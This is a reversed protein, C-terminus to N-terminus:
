PVPELAVYLFSWVGLIFFIPGFAIALSAMRRVNFRSIYLFLVPLVSFLYRGQAQYDVVWSFYVSQAISLLVGLMLLGTRMWDYANSRDALVIMAVLFAIWVVFSASYYQKPAYKKMHGYAGVFSEFTMTFWAYRESFLDFLPVGKDRMRFTPMEEIKEVPDVKFNEGAYREVTAILRSSRDFDNIAHHYIINSFYIILVGAVVYLVKQLRNNIFLGDQFIDIAVYSLILIITLIYNLKSTAVLGLLIVLAIGGGAFETKGPYSIYKHVLSRKDALLVCSCLTLFLPFADGNFYSFIYWLQPTCSRIITLPIRPAERRIIYIILASFLLISIMRLSHHYAPALSIFRSAQGFMWYVPAGDQLYSFGYKSFTPELLKDDIAPPFWTSLFVRAAEVHLHEDPNGDVPSTAAFSLMLGVAIAPLTSLVGVLIGPIRKQRLLIVLLGLPVSLLILIEIANLKINLKRGDIKIPEDFRVVLQPDAASAAVTVTLGSSDLVTSLIDHQARVQSLSIPIPAINKGCSLFMETITIVGGGDPPDFRLSKVSTGGLPFHAKISSKEESIKFISYNDKEFREEDSFYVHAVGSITSTMKIILCAKESNEVVGNLGNFIVAGLVVQAIIVYASIKINSFFKLKEWDM